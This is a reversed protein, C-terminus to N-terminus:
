REKNEPVKGGLKREQLLKFTIDCDWGLGLNGERDSNVYETWGWDQNWPGKM